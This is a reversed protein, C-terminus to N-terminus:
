DDWKVSAKQEETPRSTWFVFEKGYREANNKLLYRQNVGCRWPPASREDNLSEGFVPNFQVFVPTVSDPNDLFQMANDIAEVVNMRKAGAPPANEILRRIKGPPGKHKKDYEALLASRSILDTM